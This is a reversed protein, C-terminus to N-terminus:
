LALVIIPTTRAAVSGEHQRVDIGPRLELRASKGKALRYTIYTTNQRHVMTVRKELTFEDSEYTFIPLGNEELIFSQLFPSVIDDHTARSLNEATLSYVRDEIQLTEDIRDADDNAWASGAFSSM